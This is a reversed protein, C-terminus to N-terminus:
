QIQSQRFIGSRKVNAISPSSNSRLDSIGVSFGNTGFKICAQIYVMKM